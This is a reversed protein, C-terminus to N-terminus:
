GPRQKPLATREGKEADGAELHNDGRVSSIAEKKILLGSRSLIFL